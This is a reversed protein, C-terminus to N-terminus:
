YFDGTCDPAQGSWLGNLMCTRVLNGDTLENGTTCHYKIDGLFYNDTMEMLSNPIKPPLNCTIGLLM